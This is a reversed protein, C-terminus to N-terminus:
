DSVSISSQSGAEGSSRDAGDHFFEDICLTVIRALRDSDRLQLTTRLEPRCRWEEKILILLQEIPLEQRRAARCLAQIESHVGATTGTATGDTIARGLVEGLLPRLEFASEEPLASSTMVAHRRTGTSPIAM